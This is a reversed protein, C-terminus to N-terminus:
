GLMQPLVREDHQLDADMVALYDASTALMGEICASALGRRGIRELVRINARGGAAVRAAEATGDPSDDDVVIVEYRVGELATRLRAFLPVLNERENYTPIVVCLDYPPM